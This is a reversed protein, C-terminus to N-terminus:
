FSVPMKPPSVVHTYEEYSLVKSGSASRTVALAQTVPSPLCNHPSPMPSVRAKEIRARGGHADAEPTDGIFGSRIQHLLEVAARFCTLDVFSLRQALCLQFHELFAPSRM